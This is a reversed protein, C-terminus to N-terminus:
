ISVTVLDEISQIQNEIECASQTGQEIDSSDSDERQLLWSSRQVFRRSAFDLRSRWRVVNHDIQISSLRMVFGRGCARQALAHRNKHATKLNSMAKPSTLRHVLTRLLGSCCLVRMRADRCLLASSIRPRFVASADTPFCSGTVISRIGHAVGFVLQKSLCLRAVNGCLYWYREKDNELRWLAMDRDEEEEDIQEEALNQDLFDSVVANIADESGGDDLISVIKAKL